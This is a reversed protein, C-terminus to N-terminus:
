KKAHKKQALNLHQKLHNLKMDFEQDTMSTLAHMLRMANWAKNLRKVDM